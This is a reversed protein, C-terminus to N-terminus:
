RPSPLVRRGAADFRHGELALLRAKLPLGGGFGTLSGDSGVLRHCPVVIPVPNAHSAGGVARAARPKGAADALAGYSTLSGYPIQALLAWVTLQFPTGFLDVPLSFRRLEGALYARLQQGTAAPLGADLAQPLDPRGPLQVQGNETPFHLEGLGKDTFCALFEGWATEIVRYSKMEM